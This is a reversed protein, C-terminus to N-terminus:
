IRRLGPSAAVVVKAKETTAEEGEGEFEGHNGTTPISEGHEEGLDEIELDAINVPKVYLWWKKQEQGIRAVLSDYISKGYLQHGEDYMLKNEARDIARAKHLRLRFHHADGHAAFGIRLGRTTKLARDLVEFCDDYSLRSTSTTM